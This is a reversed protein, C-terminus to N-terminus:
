YNEKDNQIKCLYKRISNWNFIMNVSFEENPKYQEYTYVIYVSYM